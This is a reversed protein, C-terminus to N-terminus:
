ILTPVAAPDGIKGLADAAGIRVGEDKDKRDGTLLGVLSPLSEANAGRGTFRRSGLVTGGPGRAGAEKQMIAI